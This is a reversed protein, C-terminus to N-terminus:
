NLRSSVYGSNFCQLFHRFRLLILHIAGFGFVDVFIANLVVPMATKYSTDGNRKTFKQWSKEGYGPVSARLWMIVHLKYFWTHRPKHAANQISFELLKECFTNKKHLQSM